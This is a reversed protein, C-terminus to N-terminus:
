KKTNEKTISLTNLKTQPMKDHRSRDTVTRTRLFDSMRRFTASATASASQLRVFSIYEVYETILLDTVSASWQDRIFPIAAKYEILCGQSLKKSYDLTVTRRCNKNNFQEIVYGNKHSGLFPIVCDHM